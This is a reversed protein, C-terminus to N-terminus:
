GKPKKPAPTRSGYGSAYGGIGAGLAAGAIDGFGPAKQADQQRRKDLQYAQDAANWATNVGLGTDLLHRAWDQENNAQDGRFRSM